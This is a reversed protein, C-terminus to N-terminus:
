REGHEHAHLARMGNHGVPPESTGFGVLNWGVRDKNGGYSPDGLFGELTLVVLSEYFHAEGSEPPSDRFISLLDDQQEPQAEWYEKNWMRRARRQLADIGGLFDDKMKVLEPSTLMRDIYVPVNAELAGPDQDKPLVRACVAELTKFEQDTFTLHSTTLDLRPVGPVKRKGPTADSKKCAAGLLVVGGGFFTLRHIFVRRTMRPKVVRSRSM